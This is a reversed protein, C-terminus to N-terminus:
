DPVFKYGVGRITQIMREGDSGLAVRLRRVHVDITRAEIFVHDGWVIDLIQSRNFVKGPNAMFFRLLKFESLALTLPAGHLTVEHTGPDLKLPGAALPDGANEPARRRLVANLRAVLERPSFPKVVYDDAGQELGTIRDQEEGRASLMLMPLNRTRAEQRLRKALEVGSMGPLMWDIIVAKPLVDRIKTLAEEASACCVADYGAVELTFRLLEQIAIDDEIVMVTLEATGASRKASM